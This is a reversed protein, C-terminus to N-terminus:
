DYSMDEIMDWIRLLLGYGEDYGMDKMM